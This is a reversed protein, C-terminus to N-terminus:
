IEDDATFSITQVNETDGSVPTEITAVGKILEGNARLTGTYVYADTGSGSGNPVVTFVRKYAVYGGEAEEDFHVNIFERNAGSGIIEDDNIKALDQLVENPTELDFSYSWSSSMGTTDTTEFKEDVYKRTYEIPNKSETLDTFGTLRNYTQPDTGVGMFMKRNARLVLGM